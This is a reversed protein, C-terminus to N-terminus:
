SEPRLGARVHIRGGPAEDAAGKEALRRLYHRLPVPGLEMMGDLFERITFASGRSRRAAELVETTERYGLYYTTLQPATTLTRTWMNGAFQEEQLAEERVFRLVEERTMGRTHVRIDM